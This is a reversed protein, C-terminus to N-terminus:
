SVSLDSHRLFSYPLWWAQRVRQIGQWAAQIVESLTDCSLNALEQDKLNSWLGEVPNLDPAYAPLRETVLWGRQTNLWTGMATSRHAPLGDWLLTAKQGGLFRRLEGLVGILTDTDYNGAQVHFAVQAGGGRAGYCLAGAMSARKWNFHHRLVPPRGRPAWTRRVNPLLSLSSEDFFVLCASRRRANQKIRPWDTAVWRDIAAQDRERARRIPRQPSRGLRHRLLWWVHSPHYHVGFERAILQTIRSVTWLDGTFGHVSAGALLLEALRQLDQSTLRTAYGTPGRSTLAQTGGAKWRAHWRHASQRTVDLQRAVEAQSVGAAFLEAARLRRAELEKHDPFTIRTM